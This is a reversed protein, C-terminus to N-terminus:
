SEAPHRQPNGRQAAGCERREEHEARAAALRGRRLGHLRLAGCRRRTRGRDREQADRRDLANRDRGVPLPDCAERRVFADLHHELRRAGPLRDVIEGLERRARHDVREAPRAVVHDHDAVLLVGLAALAAELAPSRGLAHDHVVDLRRVRPARATAFVPHDRQARVVPALARAVRAPRERHVGRQGARHEVVQGVVRLVHQDVPPRRALLARARHDRAHAVANRLLDHRRTGAHVDPIRVVVPAHARAAPAALVADRADHERPGFRAPREALDALDADRLLGVELERAERDIRLRDVHRRDSRAPALLEVGVVEGGVPPPLGQVGVLVVVDTRQLDRRDVARQPRDLDVGVLGLEVEEVRRRLALLGRDVGREGAHRVPDHADVAGAPRRDHARAAVRIRGVVVAVIALPLPHVEQVARIGREIAALEGCGPRDVVRRAVPERDGGIEGHGVAGRAPVQRHDHDDV